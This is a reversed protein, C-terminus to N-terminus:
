RRQPAQANADPQPGNFRLTKDILQNWNLMQEAVRRAGAAMSQRLAADGALREIHHRLQEVMPQHEDLVVINGETNLYSV